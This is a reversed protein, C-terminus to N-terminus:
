RNLVSNCCDSNGGVGLEHRGTGEVLADPHPVDLRAVQDFAKFTRVTVLIADVADSKGWIAPFENATTQVLRDLHPLQRSGTTHVLLRRELASTAGLSKLSM